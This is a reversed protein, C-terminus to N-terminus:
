DVSEIENLFMRVFVGLFPILGFIQASQPGTLNVCLKLVVVIDVYLHDFPM